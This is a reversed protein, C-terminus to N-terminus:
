SILWNRCLTNTCAGGCVCWAREGEARQGRGEGDAGEERHNDREREREQRNRSQSEEEGAKGRKAQDVLLLGSRQPAQVGEALRM